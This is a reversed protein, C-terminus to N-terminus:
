RRRRDAGVTQCQEIASTITAAIDVLEADTLRCHFPVSFIKDCIAETTPLRVGRASFVPDRHVPPFYVRAEIRRAALAALIADRHQDSRLTMLMYTATRDTREVPLDVPVDALLTRLRGANARKRRLIGDLRHLQERGIAAQMETLRWNYGLSRTGRGDPPLGHNRLRRLAAATAADRTTVMGGEGTTINKTPTFSFMAAEGLGGVPRGHYRAGHAQAADELLLGAASAVARLADMDAAQGAYHVAMVARTRGTIVSAVHAADLTLTEPEVEAFVPVAGVHVVATATSVFTLSPVIVEDGPGIGYAALMATLAVTGNAFAVAHPVEHLDAFEAEFAQTEEGNTLTGSRLVRQVARYEADGMIPSALRIRVDSNNM